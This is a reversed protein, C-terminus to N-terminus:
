KANKRADPELEATFQMGPSLYNRVGDLTIIVGGGAAPEIATCNGVGVEYRTGFTAQTDGLYTTTNLTISRIKM